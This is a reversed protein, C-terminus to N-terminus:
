AEGEGRDTTDANEGAGDSAVAADGGSLFASLSEGLADLEGGVFSDITEHVASVHDPVKGPLGGIPGVGDGTGMEDSGANSRNASPDDTDSAADPRDDHADTAGDNAADTPSAAGIATVGVLLVTVAVAITGLQRARMAVTGGRVDVM